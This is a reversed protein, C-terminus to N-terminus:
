PTWAVDKVLVRTEASHPSPPLTRVIAVTRRFPQGLRDYGDLTARQGAAVATGEPLGLLGDGPPTPQDATLNVGGAGAPRWSGAFLPGPTWTHLPKAGPGSTVIDTYLRVEVRMADRAALRAHSMLAGPWM